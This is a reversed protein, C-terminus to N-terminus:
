GSLGHIFAYLALVTVLGLLIRLAILVRELGPGLVMRPLEPLRERPPQTDLRRWPRSNSRARPEASM